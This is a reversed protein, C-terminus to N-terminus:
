EYQSNRSKSVVMGCPQYGNLSTIDRLNQIKFRFQPVGQVTIEKFFEIFVWTVSVLTEECLLRCLNMNMCAQHISCDHFFYNSCRIFNMVVIGIGCLDFIPMGHFSLLPKM